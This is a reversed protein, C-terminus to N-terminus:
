SSSGNRRGVARNGFSVALFLTSVMLLNLVDNRPTSDSGAAIACGGGSVSTLMEEPDMPEPDMPEPDMPEPDMPEPDMPEPDMPEPDMPEMAMGDGDCQPLESDMESPYIGSGFIVGPSASLASVRLYEFPDVVYSVKLSDGPAITSDNEAEVIDDDLNEPDDWCYEVIGADSPPNAVYNSPDNAEAVILERVNQGAEDVAVVRQREFKQNAGHYLMNGEDDMVFLYISGSNWDGEGRGFVEAFRHSFNCGQDIDASTLPPQVLSFQAVLPKITDIPANPIDQADIISHFPALKSIQTFNCARIILDIYYADIADEVFEKLKAEDTGVEDAHIFDQNHRAHVSTTIGSFAGALMLVCSFLAALAATKFVTNRM